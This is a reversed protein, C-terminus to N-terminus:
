IVGVVFKSRRDRRFSWLDLECSPFGATWFPSARAPLGWAAIELDSSSNSVSQLWESWFHSYAAYIAMSIAAFVDMNM